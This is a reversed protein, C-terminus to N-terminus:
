FHRQRLNLLRQRIAVLSLGQLIDKQKEKSEAKFIDELGAFVEMARNIVSRDKDDLTLKREARVLVKEVIDLELGNVSRSQIQTDSYAPFTVPSVDVLDVDLLTRINDENQREWADTKVRFGFSMQSIDGRSITEILDRAWQTNPPKINIKLGKEDEEVRLTNASTRGLVFNPDHNLLARVDAKDEITRKFAGPSIKERFGGLNGSMSNFVAAYGILSKADGEVTVRLENNPWIRKEYPM